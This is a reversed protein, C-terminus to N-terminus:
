RLVPVEERREERGAVLDEQSQPNYVGGGKWGIM